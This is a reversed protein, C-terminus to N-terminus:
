LTNIDATVQGQLYKVREEGSLQILGQNDLHTLYSAPILTSNDIPM